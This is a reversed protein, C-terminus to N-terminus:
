PIQAKAEEVSGPNWSEGEGRIKVFSVRDVSIRDRYYRWTPSKNQIVGQDILAKTEALMVADMSPITPNWGNMELAFLVGDEATISSTARKPSKFCSRRNILSPAPKSALSLYLMVGAMLAHMWPWTAQRETTTSISASISAVAWVPNVARMEDGGAVLSGADAM